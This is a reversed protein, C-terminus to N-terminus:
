CLMNDTNYPSAPLPPSPSLSAPWAGSASPTRPALSAPAWPLPYPSRQAYYLGINGCLRSKPQAWQDGADYRHADCLRPLRAAGCIATVDLCSFIVTLKPFSAHSPYVHMEDARMAYDVHVRLVAFLRCNLSMCSQSEFVTNHACRMTWTRAYYQINRCPQYGHCESAMCSQSEEVIYRRADSLNYLWAHSTNVWM